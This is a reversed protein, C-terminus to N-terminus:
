WERSSPAQKPLCSLSSVFCFLCIFNFGLLLFFIFAPADPVRNSKQYMNAAHERRARRGLGAWLAVSAFRLLLM